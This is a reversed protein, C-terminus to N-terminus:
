GDGNEGNTRHTEKGYPGATEVLRKDKNIRAQVACWTAEDVIAEHDNKLYNSVYEAYPNPRKTLLDKPPKKQLLKDGRYVENKLKYWIASTSLPKGTRSVVGMQALNKQISM